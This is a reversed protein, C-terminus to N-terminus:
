RHTLIIRKSRAFKEQDAFCSTFKRLYKEFLPKRYNKVSCAWRMCVSVVDTTSCFSFFVFVLAHHLHLSYKREM